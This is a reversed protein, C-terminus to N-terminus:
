ILDMLRKRLCFFISAGVVFALAGAFLSAAMLHLSPRTGSLAIQRVSEIITALPNFQLYVRVREPVFASPYFIPSTIWMAFVVLEYMYPLDRFYAFLASVALAFGLSLLVMGALPVFLALVNVANGSTVLTVIALLPLAGICLQFTQAAIMSVPFVSPPLAIKNLLGSNGVITPLAMSTSGSFFNLIVLGTFCSLVYQLLSGGYYSAFASGFITTYVLTMLIPNSLSWYIGLFSGRYRVKLSRVANVFVLDRYRRVAPSLAFLQAAGPQESSVATRNMKVLM